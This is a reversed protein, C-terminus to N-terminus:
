FALSLIFASDGYGWNGDIPASVAQDRAPAMRAAVFVGRWPAGWGLSLAEGITEISM